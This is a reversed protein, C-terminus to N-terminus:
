WNRFANSITRTTEMASLNEVLNHLAINEYSNRLTVCDVIYHAFQKKAEGMALQQYLNM